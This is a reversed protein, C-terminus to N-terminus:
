AGKKKGVEKKYARCCSDCIPLKLSKVEAESLHDTHQCRIWHLKTGDKTKFLALDKLDDPLGSRRRACGIKGLFGFLRMIECADLVLRLMGFVQLGVAAWSFANEKTAGAEIKEWALAVWTTTKKSAKKPAPAKAIEGHEKKEGGGPTASAASIAVLAMALFLLRSSQM